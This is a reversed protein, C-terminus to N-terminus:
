IGEFGTDTNFAKGTDLKVWGSSGSFGLCQGLLADGAAPTGDAGSVLDAPNDTPTASVDAMVTDGVDAAAAGVFPVLFVGTVYVDVLERDGAVVKTKACIGLIVDGAAFAAISPNSALGSTVDSFVISGGYYTGTEAPLSLKLVPGVHPTHAEATLAAM